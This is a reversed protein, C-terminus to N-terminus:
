DNVPATRVDKVQYPLLYGSIGSANLKKLAQEATAEDPFGLVQLSHKKGNKMPWANLRLVQRILSQLPLLEEEHDAKGIIIAYLSNKHVVSRGEPGPEGSAGPKGAPQPSLVFGNKFGSGTLETLFQSADEFSAFGGIRAKFSHSGEMSIRVPHGSRESLDKQAKLAQSPDGTGRAVVFYGQSGGALKGQFTEGSSATDKKEAPVQEAPKPSSEPLLRLDLGEAIDGTVSKKIIFTRADARLDLKEMQASDIEASYSGPPLGLYTYYGDSETVTSAIRVGNRLFNVIIRGQGKESNGIYVMGSAEGAVIVPIELFKLKNPDVAVKYTKNKLQYAINDFSSSKLELLYSNYAELDFIRITTDKLSHEIRGGDMRLELGSVKPEGADRRNNLNLDLYPSLVLGAKGVNSRNNMNAYNRKLDLFGGGTISQSFTVGHDSTRASFATRAFSLNVRLGINFSGSNYNLGNQYSLNLYGRRFVPREAEARIQQIRSFTYGYQIQPRFTIRGPLRMALALNSYINLYGDGISQGYTTLNVGVGKVSASLLLDGTTQRIKPYIIQNISLRSYGSLRGLKFPKSIMAKREELFSHFTAQQGRKYRTYEMQLVLDKPLRYNLAGKGRVGYTYDGSLILSSAIRASANVFPMVPSGDTLSSLYEAGTGITIRKSLGYKVDLRSFRDQRGNELMGATFTYDLEKEPLFSHPVTIREEKMREEGAPGFYRLQVSTSGYMLPVKFLFFGSADAKVYDVLVNNIYLEVIWGPETHDSLDYTGFSRRYTTPSNTMQVGIVPAYLMATAQVPVKGAQIQRLVRGDNNVFRWLYQQERLRFDRRSDYVLSLNTEGGAVVAGLRLNLRTDQEGAPQQASSVSWDYAGFEMFRFTRPIVTDTKVEQKIKHLNQRMLEQKKERVVPLELKTQVNVALNRFNFICDIGFVKGFLDSRLFLGSVTQVLGASDLPHTKGGLLIQNKPKSITYPRDAALFFGSITENDASIQHNIKLYQFLGTISLHVEEGRFLADVETGGVGPVNIFVSGEDFPLDQMASGSRPFLLFTLFIAFAAAIGPFFLVSQEHRRYKM